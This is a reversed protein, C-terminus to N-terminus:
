DITMAVDQEEVEGEASLTETGQVANGTVTLEYKIHSGALSFGEVVINNGQWTGEVNFPECFDCRTVVGTVANGNRELVIGAKDEGITGSLSCSQQQATVEKADVAAADAGETQTQRGGCASLMILATIILTHTIKKM